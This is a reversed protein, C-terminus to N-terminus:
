EGDRDLTTGNVSSGTSSLSKRLTSAVPRFQENSRASKPLALDENGNERNQVARNTVPEGRVDDGENNAEWSNDEGGVNFSTRKGRSQADKLSSEDSQASSLTHLSACDRLSDASCSNAPSTKGNTAVVPDARPNNINKEALSGINEETSSRAHIKAPAEDVVKSRSTDSQAREDKKGSAGLTLPSIKNDELSTSDSAVKGVTIEKKEEKERVAVKIKEVVSVDSFADSVTRLISENTHQDKVALDKDNQVEGPKYEREANSMNDEKDQFKTTVVDPADVATERSKQSRVSVIRTSSLRSNERSTEVKDSLINSIKKLSEDESRSDRKSESNGRSGPVTHAIDRVSAQTEPPEPLDSSRENRNALNCSDETVRGNENSTVKTCTRRPNWEQPTSEEVARPSVKPSDSKETQREDKAAEDGVLGDNRNKVNVLIEKLVDLTETRRTVKDSVSDAERLRALLKELMTPAIASENLAKAVKGEISHREDQLIYAVFRDTTENKLGRLIQAFIDDINYGENMRPNANENAPDGFRNTERSNADVYRDESANHKTQAVGIPEQRPCHTQTDTRTSSLAPPLNSFTTIDSKDMSSESLRVKSKPQPAEDPSMKSGYSAGSMPQETSEVSGKLHDDRRSERENSRAFGSSKTKPASTEQSDSDSTRRMESVSSVSPDQSKPIIDVVSSSTTPKDSAFLDKRDRDGSSDVTSPNERNDHRSERKREDFKYKVFEPKSLLKAFTQAARVVREIKKDNSLLISDLEDLRPRYLEVEYADDNKTQFDDSSLRARRIEEAVVYPADPGDYSNFMNLLYGDITRYQKPSATTRCPRAINERRLFSARRSVDDSVLAPKSQDDRNKEQIKDAVREEHERWVPHDVNSDKTFIRGDATQRSEINNGSNMEVHIADASGSKEASAEDDTERVENMVNLTPHEFTKADGADRLDVGEHRREDAYAGGRVQSTIPEFEKNGREYDSDKNEVAVRIDEEPKRSADTTPMEVVAKAAVLSERKERLSTTLRARRRARSAVTPQNAEDDASTRSEEVDSEHRLVYTATNAGKRPGPSIHVDELNQRTLEGNVHVSPGIQIRCVGVDDPHVLRAAASVRRRNRATQIDRVTAEDDKSSSDKPSSDKPSSDKSDKSAEALLARGRSRWEDAGDELSTRAAVRRRQSTRFKPASLDVRRATVRPANEEGCAEPRRPYNAEQFKSAVLERIYLLEEVEDDLPPDDVYRFTHM